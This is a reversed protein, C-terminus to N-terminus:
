SVKWYCKAVGRVISHCMFACLQWWSYLQGGCHDARGDPRPLGGCLGCQVCEPLPPPECPRLGPWLWYHHQVGREANGGGAPGETHWWQWFFISEHLVDHAGGAHRHQAAGRHHCRGVHLSNHQWHAARCMRAHPWEPLSDRLEGCAFLWRQEPQFWVNPGMRGALADQVQCWVSCHM